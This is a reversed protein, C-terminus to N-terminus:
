IGWGLKGLSVMFLGILPSLRKPYLFLCVNRDPLLLDFVQHGGWFSVISADYRVVLIDCYLSLACTLLM